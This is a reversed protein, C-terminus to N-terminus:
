ESIEPTTPRTRLDRMKGFTSDIMRCLKEAAGDVAQAMNAAQHSAAIPQRGELRAEIVCRKHDVGPKKNSNEDSLHVEVRTIHEAFRHLATEIVGSVRTALAERGEVHRDTHVQIQM